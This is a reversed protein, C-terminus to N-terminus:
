AGESKWRLQWAGQMDRSYIRAVAGDAQRAQLADEKAAAIADTETAYPGYRVDDIDFMWRRREAVIYYAKPPKQDQGNRQESAM